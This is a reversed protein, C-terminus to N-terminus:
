SDFKRVSRRGGESATPRDARRLRRSVWGIALAAIGTAAFCPLSAGWGTHTGAGPLVDGVVRTWWAPLTGPAVIWQYLAIGALWAAIMLPRIGPEPQGPQLAGNVWEALMVAFLPVFVSGLLILFAEYIGVTVVAALGAGVVGVAVVLLRQPMGPVINRVSIAAPYIDAFGEHTEGGVLAVLVVLGLAATASLGLISAAVGDPSADTLRANLVLLAGLAYFWTNGVTYGAWTGL